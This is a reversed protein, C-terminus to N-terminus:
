IEVAVGQETFAKEGGEEEMADGTPAEGEFWDGGKEERAENEISDSSSTRSGLGNRHDDHDRVDSCSSSDDSEYEAARPTNNHEREISAVDPGEEDDGTPGAVFM